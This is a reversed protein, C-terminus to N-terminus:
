SCKGMNLTETGFFESILAAHEAADPRVWAPLTAMSPAAFLVVTQRAVHLPHFVATTVATSSTDSIAAATPITAATAIPEDSGATGEADEDEEPEEAAFNAALREYRDDNSDEDESIVIPESHIGPPLPLPPTSAAVGAVPLSM